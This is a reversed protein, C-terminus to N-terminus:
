RALEASSSSSPAARFRSNVVQHCLRNRKDRTPSALRLDSTPMRFRCPMALLIQLVGSSLSNIKTLDCGKAECTGAIGREPEDGRRAEAASRSRQKRSRVREQANACGEDTAVESVVVFSAAACRSRGAQQTSLGWGVIHESSQCFVEATRKKSCCRPCGVRARECGAEDKRNERVMRAALGGCRGRLEQVRTANEDCGERGVQRSRM